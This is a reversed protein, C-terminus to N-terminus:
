EAFGPLESGSYLAAVTAVLQRLRDDSIETGHACKNAYLNASKLKKETEEDIVRAQKLRHLRDTTYGQQTISRASCHGAIWRELAIRAAMGALLGYEQAMLVQAFAAYCKVKGQTPLATPPTSRLSVPPKPLTAPPECAADVLSPLLRAADPPTLKSPDIYRQTVYESSHGLLMSAHAAGNSAAVQTCVTRRIKHFLGLNKRPSPAIGALAMIKHFQRNIRQENCTKEFYLERAPEAIARLAEVAEASLKFKKGRKTKMSSGRITAWGTALDVDEMRLSLISSRRAATCGAVLLVAYWWKNLPVPMFETTTGLKESAYVMRMLEDWSWADPEDRSEKLKRVRPLRQVKGHDYAHRWIAFLVARNRNNVTVPSAGEALLKAFYEALLSDSLQDLRVEAGVHESLRRIASRATDISSRRVGVMREKVYSTDFFHRLTGPEFTAAPNYRHRPPTLAAPEARRVIMRLKGAMTRRHAASTGKKAAAAIFRKLAAETLDALQVKAGFQAKAHAVAHDYDRLCSKSRKSEIEPRFTQQYFRELPVSKM